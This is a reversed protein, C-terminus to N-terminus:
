RYIFMILCYRFRSSRGDQRKTHSVCHSCASQDVARKYSPFCDVLNKIKFRDQRIKSLYLKTEKLVKNTLPNKDCDIALELESSKTELEKDLKRAIQPLTRKKPHHKVLHLLDNRWEIKSLGYPTLEHNAKVLNVFNDSPDLNEKLM